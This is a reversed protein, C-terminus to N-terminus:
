HGKQSDRSNKNSQPAGKDRSAKPARSVRKERNTVSPAPLSQFENPQLDVLSVMGSENGFHNLLDQYAESAQSIDMNVNISRINADLQLKVEAPAQGEAREVLFRGIKPDATKLAARYYRRALRDAGTRLQKDTLDPENLIKQCARSFAKNMYRREAAISGGRNGVSLKNGIEFPMHSESSNFLQDRPYFIGFFCHASCRKETAPRNTQMIQRFLHEELEGADKM